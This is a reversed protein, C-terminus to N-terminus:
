VGGERVSSFVLSDNMTLRHPLGAEFGARYKQYGRQQVEIVALWYPERRL